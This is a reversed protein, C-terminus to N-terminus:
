LPELKEEIITNLQGDIGYLFSIFYFSKPFKRALHLISTINVM